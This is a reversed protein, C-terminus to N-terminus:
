MLVLLNKDQLLCAFIYFSIFLSKHLLLAKNSYISLLLECVNTQSLYFMHNSFDFSTHILKGHPAEVVAKLESGIQDLCANSTAMCIHEVARRTLTEATIVMSATEQIADEPLYIRLLIKFGAYLQVIKGTFDM